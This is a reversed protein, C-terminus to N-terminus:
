FGGKVAPAFTLFDFENLEDNDNAPEGNITVAYNGTLGLQSKADSVSRADNLIKDRGGLVQTTVKAM